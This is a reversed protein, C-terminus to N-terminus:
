DAREPTQHQREFCKPTGHWAHRSNRPATIPIRHEPRLCGPIMPLQILAADCRGHAEASADFSGTECPEVTVHTFLVTDSTM